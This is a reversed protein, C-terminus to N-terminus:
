MHRKVQDATAGYPISQLAFVFGNRANWPQRYLTLVALTGLIILPWQLRSGFGLIRPLGVCGWVLLLPVGVFMTLAFPSWLGATILGGLYAWTLAGLGVLIGLILCLWDVKPHYPEEADTSLTVVNEWFHQEPPM